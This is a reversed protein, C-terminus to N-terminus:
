NKIKEDRQPLIEDRHMIKGKKENKNPNSASQKYFVL